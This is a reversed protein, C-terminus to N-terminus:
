HPPAEELLTQLQARLHQDSQLMSQLAGLVAEKGGESAAAYEIAKAAASRRLKALEQSLRSSGAASASWDILQSGDQLLADASAHRGAQTCSNSGAVAQGGDDRAV